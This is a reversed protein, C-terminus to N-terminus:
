SGRRVLRRESVLRWNRMTRAALQRRVDGTLSSRANRCADGPRGSVRGVHHVPVGNRSRKPTAIVPRPNCVSTRRRPGPRFDSAVRSRMTASATRRRCPNGRSPRQRSLAATPKPAPTNHGWMPDFSSTSRAIQLAGHRELPEIREDYFCREASQVVCNQPETGIALQGRVFDSVAHDGHHQTRSTPDVGRFARDGGRPLARVGEAFDSSGLLRLQEQREAVLGIGLTPLATTNLTRKM